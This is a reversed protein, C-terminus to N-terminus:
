GSLFPPFGGTKVTKQFFRWYHHFVVMKGTKEFFRFFPPFGGSKVTKEFFRWFHHNEVLKPCIKFFRWFNTLKAQFKAFYLSIFSKKPHSVVMKRTKKFFRFLPPFGGTKGSKEFIRCFHHNEVVKSPKKLFGDFHHNEVMKGTKWFFRFFPPKGGFYPWKRHRGSCTLTEIWCLKAGPGVQAIWQHFSFRNESIWYMVEPWYSIKLKPYNAIKTLNETYRNAAYVGLKWSNKPCRVWPM